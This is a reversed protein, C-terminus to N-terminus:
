PKWGDFLPPQKSGNIMRKGCTMARHRRVDMWHEWKATAARKREINSVGRQRTREDAEHMHELVTHEGELRRTGRQIAYSRSNRRKEILPSSGAWAFKTSSTFRKRTTIDGERREHPFVFNEQKRDPSHMMKTINKTQSRKVDALVSQSASRGPGRGPRLSQQSMSRELRSANEFLMARKRQERQFGSRHQDARANAIQDLGNYIGMKAAHRIPPTPQYSVNDTSPVHLIYRKSM